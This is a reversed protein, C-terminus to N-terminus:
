GRDRPSPSTYLLCFNYIGLIMILWVPKSLLLNPFMHKRHYDLLKLYDDMVFKEDLQGTLIPNGTWTPIVWLYWAIAPILILLQPIVFKSILQSIKKRRLDSIVFCLSVIGILIYPLKCLTALSLFISAVILTSMSESNRYRLISLLYCCSLCLALNDPIPNITYNFFLPSFQLLASSLAATWFDNFLEYVIGAFALLTLVGILFISIRVFRISEGFWIQPQAILWQMLPFEYRLINDKGGNFISTRPNIILNDHRVFNRINWM